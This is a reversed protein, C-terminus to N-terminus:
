LLSRFWGREALIRFEKLRGNFSCKGLKRGCGCPCPLKNARGKKMGLYKVAVKAQEISKLGFLIAYDAL